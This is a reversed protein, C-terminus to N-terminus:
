AVLLAGDPRLVRHVEDFARWFHPVHELTNLALVTGISGTPFPLEEVSGVIDVDPGPQTDLGLYTRGPFMTRVNALDEQGVVARSGVELIPGPLTFTEAVARVLGRLFSNM